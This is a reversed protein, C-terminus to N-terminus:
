NEGALMRDLRRADFGHMSRNGVVILPVGRGGLRKFEDRASRDQEIDVARYSVGKRDLHAKARKCIGCWSTTYLTVSRGGAVNTIDEVAAPGEYSTVHLDLAAADGRAPPYESYHVKGQADVWKYVTQAQALGANVLLIALLASVTGPYHSM